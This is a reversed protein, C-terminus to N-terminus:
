FTRGFETAKDLASQMLEEARDPTYDIGEIFLQDVQDIGVFNLIGKVYQSAFDQGNYIGGNSQIHLAKKGTVLGEPGNETYHFTKGAVNVTDFWAKLKTPINLNWLANAIVIKDSALFQDTLENFRTIKQQQSESLTSFTAGARLAEWGSLLEEDIEPIDDRYLELVTVADNPHYEKYSTLFTTLTKVSRSEQATLPHGKVILVSAM